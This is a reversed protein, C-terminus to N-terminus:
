RAVQAPRSWFLLLVVVKNSTVEAAIIGVLVDADFYLM